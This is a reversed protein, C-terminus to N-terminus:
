PTKTTARRHSSLHNEMREHLKILTNNMIELKDIIRNNIEHNQAKFDQINHLFERKLEEYDCDHQKRIEAVDKEIQLIKVQMETLKLSMERDIMLRMNQKKDYFAFLAWLGTTMTIVAGTTLTLVQWFEM